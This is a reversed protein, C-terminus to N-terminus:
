LRAPGAATAGDRGAAEGLAAHRARRLRQAEPPQTGDPAPRLYRTGATPDSDVGAGRRLPTRARRGARVGSVSVSEPLRLLLRIAEAHPDGQALRVERLSGRWPAPARSVRAPRGRPDWRRW